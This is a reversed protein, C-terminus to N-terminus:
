ELPRRVHWVSTTLELSCMLFCKVPYICVWFRLVNFLSFLGLVLSISDLVTLELFKGAATTVLLPLSPFLQCWCCWIGLVHHKNSSGNFWCKSYELTHDLLGDSGLILILTGIKLIVPILMLLLNRVIVPLSEVWVGLLVWLLALFLLCGGTVSWVVHGVVAICLWFGLFSLVNVSLLRLLVLVKGCSVVMVVAEGCEGRTVGLLFGNWIGRRGEEGEGEGGEEWVGRQM